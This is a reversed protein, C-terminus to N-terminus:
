LREWLQEPALTCRLFLFGACRVVVYDPHDIVARLEEESHELTFLRYVACMFCSPELATRYVDLTDAGFQHIEEILDELNTVNMLMRYYSSSLVQELLLPSCNFKREKKQAAAADRKKALAAAAEEQAEKKANEARQCFKCSRQAKKHLHCRPVEEPKKAAEPALAPKAKAAPRIGPNPVAGQLLAQLGAAGALNPVPGGLAAQVGVGLSHLNPAGLLGGGVSGLPLPLTAGLAAAQPFAPRGAGAAPYNVNMHAM